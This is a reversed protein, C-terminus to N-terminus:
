SSFAAHRETFDSQVDNAQDFHPSEPDEPDLSPSTTATSQMAWSFVLPLIFLTAFTSAIIGGIVARGLPATQGGGEGLGLSMPIMGAVMALSTMLIPRIRSRAGELAAGRANEWQKRCGEAMTVLLIANAVAVGISMIAGMASQINLTSGTIWLMLVVGSLVAPLTSTVVLALRFSQFNASLLLFIALIALGLGVKLENLTDLMLALQGRINVSMGRPPTGVAAITEAVDRAASGLDTEHLNATLTVSRKSNLRDIEGPTTGYAFTSVDGILPHGSGDANDAAPINQLDDASAMSSQPLQVQIQYATGSKKDLWYNPEVFRTSSTAAVISQSLGKVTLGLQGALERNVNVNMTPYDLPQGPQLDRLYPLKHLAAKIKDAFHADDALNKGSIAVEVPTPAGLSMVQSVLDAPEFSIQCDPLDHAFRARLREKLNDMRLPLEKKLAVSVVAEQPGSTWLYVTSIGFSSPQNGVYALSIDVNKAGVEAKIGDLAKLMLRETEEVRTGTPAKLRFRFEHGEVKPFLETGLHGGLLILVLTAVTLYGLILPKPRSLLHHLCASYKQVLATLSFRGIPKTEQEPHHDHHKLLWVSMVPVLTQSLVYSAIMAFGVAISLPIFLARPVGSMFFSPVFVALVCIMALLLPLGIEKASDFVARAKFKGQALHTHINEVAVTAEDVLIGIALALGGLTMTNITQGTMWLGIVACLLSIPITTVVIVTSRWCRLFAFVVVGTLVAGLIGETVLESLANAVYGSQDFEYSLKVDPPLIEQFSPLAAKVEQVVTWTSADSRKTVPIYVSRKGNVLAYGALIDTSDEVTGIDRLFVTPGSGVVLPISELEHIDEVLTNIPTLRALKGIRISGAPTILNNNSISKVVDQPSLHYDRLKEPDVSVVIARVNGGFPPPSSVGPLASFMPRIKYQALDQLEGISHTPSSFVLNGVPVSGADFRLITPPVTGQPMYAKARNVSAVVEAMAAQMNTGPYFELKILSAGQISKSEMQKIGTVYLFQTEYVSAIHGEMQSPTLGGYPQSVYILPVNLNPFIDIPMKLIAMLSVLLLALIGVVMTIPRRLTAAVIGM